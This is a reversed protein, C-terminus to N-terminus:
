YLEDVFKAKAKVHVLAERLGHNPLIILVMKFLPTLHRM